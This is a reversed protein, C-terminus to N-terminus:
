TAGGVFLTEKAKRERELEKEGQAKSAQRGVKEKRQRGGERYELNTSMVILRLKTCCPYVSGTKTKISEKTTNAECFAPPRERWFLRVNSM